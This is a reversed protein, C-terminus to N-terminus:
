DVAIYQREAISVSERGRDLLQWRAAPWLLYTLLYTTGKNMFVSLRLQEVNYCVPKFICYYYFFTYFMNMLM